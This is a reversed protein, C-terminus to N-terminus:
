GSSGLAPLRFRIRSREGRWRGGRVGTKGLDGDAAEANRESNEEMEKEEVSGSSLSETVEAAGRSGRHYAKGTLRMLFFDRM